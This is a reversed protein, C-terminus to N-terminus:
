QDRTVKIILNQKEFTVRMPSGMGSVELNMVGASNDSFISAMSGKTLHIKVEDQFIQVINRTAGEYVRYKGKDTIKLVVTFTGRDLVPLLELNNFSDHIEHKTESIELKRGNLRFFDLSVSDPDRILFAVGSGSDPLDSLNEIKKNDKDLSLNGAVQQAYRFGIYIGVLMVSILAVLIFTYISGWLNGTKEHEREAIEAISGASEMNGRMMSFALMTANDRMGRQEAISVLRNCAGQQNDLSNLIVVIEQNPIFESIGDTFLALTDYPTVVDTIFQIDVQSDIGLAPINLSKLERPVDKQPSWSSDQTLQEFNRNAIKLLRNNGCHVAYLNEEVLIVFTLSLRVQRKERAGRSYIEASIDTILDKIKLEIELDVNSDKKPSKMETFFTSNFFSTIMDIAIESAHDGAPFPGSDDAVAALMQSVKKSSRQTKFVSAEHSFISLRGKASAVGGNYTFGEAM